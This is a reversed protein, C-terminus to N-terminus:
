THNTLVIYMYVHIRIKGIDPERAKELELSITIKEDDPLNKNFELIKRIMKAM